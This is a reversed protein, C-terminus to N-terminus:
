YNTIINSKATSEHNLLWQKRYLGASFGGLAGNKHIIRHCPIIILFRNTGAANAVVRFATPTGINDALQTYSCTKGVPVKGIGMWVKKKFPTTCFSLPITFSSLTGAFYAELECKVQKLISNNNSVILTSGKLEILKKIHKKLQSNDIFDLLYLKSESAIAAMNGIPTQLLTINLTTDTLYKKNFAVQSLLITLETSEAIKLSNM